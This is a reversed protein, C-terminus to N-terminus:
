GRRVAQRRGAATQLMLFEALNELTLLGVVTGATLVPMSRLGSAQLRLYAPELMDSASITEFETRMVADVRANPGEAAMGRVLDDRTLLGVLRSRDVVPFDQQFGALVHGAADRLTEDPALRRFDVIMAARVPVGGLAHRVQVVQSEGAAGMWVFLAIFVLLPNGMLGIFGFAVALSQGITAAIRTARVYDLRMALLARLVRGGDMPFAPIMNFVALAINVWLLSRLPNGTILDPSEDILPLGLGFLLAACVAALAVNVAPGAVAVLFEQGPEEPMKELRAVGGIPLLTIDRTPIGFRRATLAHGLEHLVVIGFLLIVFAIAGFADALVRRELYYSLGIWALLLPFTLHVFVDIGALRGIRLSWKM